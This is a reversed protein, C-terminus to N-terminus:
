MHVTNKKASTVACKSPPLDLIIIPSLDPPAIMSDSIVDLTNFNPSQGWFVCVCVCLQGYAYDIGVEALGELVHSNRLSRHTQVFKSIGRGDSPM